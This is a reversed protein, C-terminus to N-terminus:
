RTSPSPANVFAQVLDDGCTTDGEGVVHTSNALEIFRTHGGLQAIVKPVDSPPTWTDFEGGLILCRSRRRASPAPRHHAAHGRHSLALRPLGHLGRHESGPGAVRPDHVARLDIGASGGSSAGARDRPRAENTHMDYLQPYDLCSVALYLMEPTSPPLPTSTTRRSRRGSRMSVCCRTLTTRLDLLARAAADLDRYIDPDGAGDNTLDVLGVVNMTVPEVVGNPGPVDGTIPEERLRAALARHDRGMGSGDPLRTRM